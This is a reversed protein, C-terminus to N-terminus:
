GQHFMKRDIESNIRNSSQYLRSADASTLM